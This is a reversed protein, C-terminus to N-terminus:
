PTARETATLEVIIRAIGAITAFTPSLLTEDSITVQYRQEIHALTETVGVSDIVGADFLDVHHDFNTTTAPFQRRLHQDLEAAVQTETPPPVPLPGVPDATPPM